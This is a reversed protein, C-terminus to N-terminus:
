YRRPGKPARRDQNEDWNEKAIRHYRKISEERVPGMWEFSFLRHGAGCRSLAMNQNPEETQTAFYIIM